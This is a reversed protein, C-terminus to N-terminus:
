SGRREPVPLDELDIPSFGSTRPVGDSAFPLAGEALWGLPVYSNLIARGFRRAAYKRLSNPIKACCLGSFPAIGNFNAAVGRTDILRCPTIAIFTLANTAMQNSSFVVQASGSVSRETQSPQWYLPTAWNKLPIANEQRAVQANLAAAALVLFSVSRVLHNSKM